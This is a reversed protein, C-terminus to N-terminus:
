RASPGPLPGCGTGCTSPASRATGEVLIRTAQATTMVTLNARERLPRLYAYSSSGRVGRDINMDFRGFGEQQFGNVDPTRPYGAQVGAAIFAEYLPNASRGEVVRLPGTGGHYADRRSAHSELRRFYPLVEAYSWGPAGEMAWRDYDLAHGRIYIMGNLSSSGGLVRGRPQYLRRGNLAPEPETWFQWNYTARPINITMAAPMRITWSDDAPGAELLLVRHSPDASLRAAMVAGASGGGVVVFDFARGAAM